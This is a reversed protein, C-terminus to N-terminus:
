VKFSIGKLGSDSFPKHSNQVILVATGLYTKKRHLHSIFDFWPSSQGEVAEDAPDILYWTTHDTGGM